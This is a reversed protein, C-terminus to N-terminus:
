YGFIDKLKLDVITGYKALKERDIASAKGVIIIDYNLAALQKNFFDALQPLSMKRITEYEAKRWDTKTGIRKMKQEFGFLELGIIRETAIKKLLADRASQFKGDYLPMKRLISHMTDIVDFLKDGQTGAVMYIVNHRGKEMAQEYSGGASYALARAERIEQFVISDLGSCFYENFLDGGPLERLSFLPGRSTFGVRMQVTDFDVIYINPKEVARPIYRVKNEPTVTGNSHIQKAAEVVTEMPSPGAYVFTSKCDTFLNRLLALLEEPRTTRLETESLLDTYPNRKGYWAYGASRQFVVGPNLKADARDKLIGDVYKSYAAPDAKANRIFHEMLAVAKKLNADPGTFEVTLAFKNISMEFKVGLKYFEQRLAEVTYDSTGIYDLYGLALEIKRNEYTSIGIVREAHFLKSGSYLNMRKVTIGNPLEVSSIDNAPDVFRPEAAPSPPLAQFERSYASEKESNLAVPTIKPKEVKVRKTPKGTLKDVRVYHKFYKGIFESVDKKTLGAITDPSNLLDSYPENNIFLEAFEWALNMNDGERIEANTVRCNEAVAAIRWDEYDGKRLKEIEELLHASVEDLSQGSRPTGDLLFLIYERGSRPFCGASLLKQTRMLNQELLGYGSDKLLRSVLTVLAVNKPTREIRYGIRLHAAEPGKVTIHRNETLPQEVPMSRTPLPAPKLKGFTDAALQYATEFNLDGVIALAMNGPVYYRDFFTMIDKMSPNKLHEPIGIISRGAPHSPLIARNLTEYSVMADKDQGRNFEEYVTELETHFLRLVPRSFREADLKLYKGLENAPLEGMYVTFDLGTAANLGSTGVSSALKSFEGAAAYQAAQNSLRDIEAYLAEKRAPDKEQKRQEFLASIRDLLEKEKKWDLTGMCSTGKFMMHEFYHALGTSNEPEDTSGARVITLVSVRPRAPNRSLFLTLGNPLRYIRADFPDNPIYSYPNGATDTATKMEAGSAPASGILAILATILFIRKMHNGKGTFSLNVLMDSLPKRLFPM